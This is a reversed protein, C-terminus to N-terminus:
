CKQLASAIVLPSGETSQVRDRHGMNLLGWARLVGLEPNRLFALSGSGSQGRAEASRILVLLM